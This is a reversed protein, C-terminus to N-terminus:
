NNASRHSSCTGVCEKGVRREESRLTAREHLWFMTPASPGYIDADLLGVKKGLRAMAVALNAVVTSKGVGGKGSAVAIIRGVNPLHAPLDSSCVDSSWDSIRM